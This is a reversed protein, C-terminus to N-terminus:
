YVTAFASGTALDKMRQVDLKMQAEVGPLQEAPVAPTSARTRAVRDSAMAPPNGAPVRAHRAGLLVSLVASMARMKGPNILVGLRCPYNRQLVVRPPVAQPVLGLIRKISAGSRWLQAMGLEVDGQSFVM